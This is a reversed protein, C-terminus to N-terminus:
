AACQEKAVTTSKQYVSICHGEKLRIPGAWESKVISSRRHVMDALGCLTSQRDVDDLMAPYGYGETRDVAIPRIVRIQCNILVNFEDGGHVAAAAAHNRSIVAAVSAPL